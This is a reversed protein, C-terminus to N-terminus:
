KDLPVRQLRDCVFTSLGVVVLACLYPGLRWFLVDAYDLPHSFSASADAKAIAPLVSLIAVPVGSSRYLLATPLSLLSAMPLGLALGHFVAESVPYAPLRICAAFAMGMATALMALLGVLPFACAAFIRRRPSGSSALGVVVVAGLFLAMKMFVRRADAQLEPSTGPFGYWTLHALLVNVGVYLGALFLMCNVVPPARAILREIRLSWLCGAAWILAETDGAITEVQRELFENWGHRAGPYSSVACRVLARAFVRLTGPTKEL